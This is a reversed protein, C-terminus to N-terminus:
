WSIRIKNGKVSEIHFGLQLLTNAHTLETAVYYCTPLLLECAGNNCAKVILENVPYWTTKARVKYSLETAESATLM